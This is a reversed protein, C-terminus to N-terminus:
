RIIIFHLRLTFRLVVLSRTLSYFNYLTSNQKIYYRLTLLPSNLISKDLSKSIPQYRIKQSKVM